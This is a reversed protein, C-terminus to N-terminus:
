DNNTYDCYESNPDCDGQLVLCGGVRSNHNIYVCNFCCLQM